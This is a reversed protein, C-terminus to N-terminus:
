GEYMVQGGGSSKKAGSAETIGKFQPLNYTDDPDKGYEVVYEKLKQSRHQLESVTNQLEVKVKDNTKAAGRLAHEAVDYRSVKNQLMMDFPTTTTGEERYSEISIRSVQPREFLLGKLESAYGHYNFHIPKDETFLGDFDSDSLSHPHIDETGLVMLDTVNVVRVRLTPAIERLLEAAKIVEFTLEPGIGVIVV